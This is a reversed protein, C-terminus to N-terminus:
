RSALACLKREVDIPLPHILNKRNDVCQNRVYNKMAM